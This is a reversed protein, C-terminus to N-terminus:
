AKPRGLLDLYWLFRVRSILSSISNKESYWHVIILFILYIFKFWNFPILAMYYGLIFGLLNSGTDGLMVQGKLDLPIYFAIIGLLGFLWITENNIGLMLAVITICFLFYKIARGPRLDFLNISNTNLAILGMNIFLQALNSSLFQSILVSSLLAAIAKICGTTITGQLLAKFHGKLGKNLSNGWIDDLFGVLTIIACGFMLVVPPEISIFLSFASYTIILSAFIALGMGVITDQDLYNKRIMNNKILYQMLQPSIYKNVLYGQLLLIAAYIYM